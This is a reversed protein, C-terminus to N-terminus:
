LSITCISETQGEINVIESDGAYLCRKCFSVEIDFTFQGYRAEKVTCTELEINCNPCVQLNKHTFRAFEVMRQKEFKSFYLPTSKVYDEMLEEFNKITM